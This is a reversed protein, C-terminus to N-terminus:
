AIEAEKAKPLKPEAAKKAENAKKKAEGSAMRDKISPKKIEAKPEKKGKDTSLKEATDKILSDIQEKQPKTKAPEEVADAFPLEEDDPINMFGDSPQTEKTPAAEIPKNIGVMNELYENVIQSRLADRFEKNAPFCIEKYVPKGDEGVQNTKVSPMSIFLNGDNSKKVAVGSVVFGDELYLNAMAKTAGKDFPTIKVGVKPEHRDDADGIFAENGSNFSSLIAGYLQERFGKTIPNCIDKYVPKGEEDVQKSKYSPMAVFLKGEHSQKIAISQVKFADGFSVTALGVVGNQNNEVKSTKVSIIMNDEREAFIGRIYRPM